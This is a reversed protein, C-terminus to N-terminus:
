LFYHDGALEQFFSFLSYMNKGYFKTLSSVNKRGMLYFNNLTVFKKLNSSLLFCIDLFLIHELDKLVM